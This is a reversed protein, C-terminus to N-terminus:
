WLLELCPRYTTSEYRNFSDVVIDHPRSGSTLNLVRHDGGDTSMEGLRRLKDTYDTYYLKQHETDVTLGHFQASGTWTFCAKLENAKCSV